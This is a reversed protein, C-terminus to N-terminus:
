LVQDPVRYLRFLLSMMLVESILLSVMVLGFPILSIVLLVSLSLVMM